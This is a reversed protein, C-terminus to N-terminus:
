DMRGWNFYFSKVGKQTLFEAIQERTAEYALSGNNSAYAIFVERPKREGKPKFYVCFGEGVMCSGRMFDPHARALKHWLTEAEEKIGALWARDKEVYFETPNEWKECGRNIFDISNEM